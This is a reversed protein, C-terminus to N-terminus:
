YYNGTQRLTEMVDYVTDLNGAMKTEMRMHSFSKYGLHKAQNIRHDRIDELIGSTRLYHEGEQACVSVKAHWCNWRLAQSPCLEVFLQLIM